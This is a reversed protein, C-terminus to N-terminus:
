TFLDLGQEHLEKANWAINLCKAICFIVMEHTTNIGLKKFIHAKHTKITWLPKLMKAAVEKDTLGHCYCRAIRWETDTLNLAKGLKKM